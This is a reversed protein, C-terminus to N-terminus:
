TAAPDPATSCTRPWARAPRRPRTRRRPRCCRACGWWCRSRRWSPAPPSRRSRRCPAWSASPRPGIATRRWPPWSPSISRTRSGCRASTPTRRSRSTPRRPPSSSGSRTWGREKRELASLQRGGRVFLDRRFQQNQLYDRLTEQLVPHGAGAILRRQAETFNVAEVQDQLSASAAFTLKSDALWENVDAFYMPEWHKNFYEHAVYRRDLSGIQQLRDKATPNATFYRGEADVLQKAFALAPEVQGLVGYQDSGATEAHIALIQRLPMAAAWGPLANYSIYVVGGVKLRRRIISCIDKRVDDGVWSWIGHLVIYDFDPLDERM